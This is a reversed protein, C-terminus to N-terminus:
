STLPRWPDERNTAGQWTFNIRALEKVDLMLLTSESAIWRYRLTDGSILSPEASGLEVHFCACLKSFGGGNEERLLVVM